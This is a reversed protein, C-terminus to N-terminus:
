FTPLPFSRTRWPCQSWMWFSCILCIPLCHLCIKGCWRHRPHGLPASPPAAFRWISTGRFNRQSFGIHFFVAELKVQGIQKVFDAVAPVFNALVLLPRVDVFGRGFTTYERFELLQQFRPNTILTRQPPQWDDRKDSDSPTTLKSVNGAMGNNSKLFPFYESWQDRFLRSPKLRLRGVRYAGVTALFVDGDRWKGQWNRGAETTQISIGCEEFVERFWNGVSRAPLSHPPNPIVVTLTALPPFMQFNLTAAIGEHILFELLMPADKYLRHIRILTSPPAGMYVLDRYLSNRSAQLLLNGITVASQGMGGRWKEAFATKDYNARHARLGDFRYYFVADAPLYQEPRVKRVGAQLPAALCLSVMTLWGFWWGRVSSALGM